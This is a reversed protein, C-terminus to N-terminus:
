VITDLHLTAPTLGGAVDEVESSCTDQALEVTLESAQGNWGASASFSLVSCGLFLTQEYPGTSNSDCTNKVPM